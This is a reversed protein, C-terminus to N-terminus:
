IGEKLLRAITYSREGVQSSWKSRLLEASVDSWSAEGNVAQGILALTKKFKKLKTLGINYHLDILAIQRAESLNSFWPFSDDLEKMSIDIDNKLLYLAENKSIGRSQINRGVGISLFGEPCTYPELKLGEHHILQECLRNFDM